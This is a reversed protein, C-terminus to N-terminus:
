QKQGVMRSQIATYGAISTYGGSKSELIMIKVPDIVSLEACGTVTKIGIYSYSCFIEYFLLSQVRFM